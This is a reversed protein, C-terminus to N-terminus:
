ENAQRNADSTQNAKRWRSVASKWSGIYDNKVSSEDAFSAVYAVWDVKKNNCERRLHGVVYCRNCQRPIGPYHVQAKQGYMPLYEQIHKKLLIEAEFVDTPVGTTSNVVFGGSRSTVTGYLRLWNLVGAAEVGLNTKVTVKTIEGIEAPKARGHGLIKGTVRESQGDEQFKEYSFFPTESLDTLKIAAKLKFTARVNRTLTKTSTIGALDERKRKFVQVWVYMLEDDTVQGYFPKGNIQDFEIKVLTDPDTECLESPVSNKKAMNERPSTAVRKKKGHSNM